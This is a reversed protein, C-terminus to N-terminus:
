KAKVMIVNGLLPLQQTNAHCMLLVLVKAYLSKLLKEQGSIYQACAILTSTVGLDVYRAGRLRRM